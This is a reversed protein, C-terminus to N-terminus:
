PRRGASLMRTKYLSRSRGLTRSAAPRTACLHRNTGDPFATKLPLVAVPFASNFHQSPLSKMFCQEFSAEQIVRASDRLFYFAQPRFTSRVVHIEIVPVYTSQVESIVSVTCVFVRPIM